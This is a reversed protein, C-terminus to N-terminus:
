LISESPDILAEFIEKLLDSHVLLLSSHIAIQGDCGALRSDPNERSLTLNQEM